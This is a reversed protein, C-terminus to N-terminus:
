YYKCFFGLIVQSLAVCCVSSVVPDPSAQTHASGAMGWKSPGGEWGSPTVSIPPWLFWSLLVATNRPFCLPSSYPPDHTPKKASPCIRLRQPDCCDTPPPSRPGHTGPIFAAGRM